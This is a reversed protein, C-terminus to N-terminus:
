FIVAFLVIALLVGLLGMLPMFWSKRRYHLLINDENITRKKMDPEAFTLEREDTFPEDARDDKQREGTFRDVDSQTRAQDTM